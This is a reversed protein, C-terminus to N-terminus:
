RNHLEDVRLVEVPEIRGKLARTGLTATEFRALSEGLRDALERSILLKAGTDNCLGQIRATTNMVDGHFVIESKADGVETAVVNGIHVGAKFQPELGYRDIYEKSRSRIAAQFLFFMQLCNAEHLGARPKWFLVVEDGIYHSVQAKTQECPRALDAFCDRVLSSFRIAGLREAHTTSDKLDLFMFIREEEKPEHYKGTIWNWLVGPGLKRSIQLTLSVVFTIAIFLMLSNTVPKSLLIEGALKWFRPGFPHIGSVGSICTLLAGVFASGMISVIAVVQLAVTGFFSPVRMRPIVVSMGVVGLSIFTGFALASLWWPIQRSVGMLALATSVAYNIAVIRWM